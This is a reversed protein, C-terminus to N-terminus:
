HLQPQSRHIELYSQAIRVVVSQELIDQLSQEGTHQEIHPDFRQTVVQQQEVQQLLYRSTYVTNCGISGVIRRELSHHLLQMGTHEAIHQEPVVAVTSRM